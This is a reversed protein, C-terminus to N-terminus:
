KRVQLPGMNGADPSIIANVLFDIDEQALKGDNVAIRVTLLTSVTLKDSEFVGRRVYNFVTKTISDILLNCRIGLEADTPDTHEPTSTEPVPIATSEGDEKVVKEAV